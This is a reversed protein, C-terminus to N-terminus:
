MYEGGSLSTEYKSKNKEIEDALEGEKIERLAEILHWWCPDLSSNLWGKVLEKKMREADNPFDKKLSDLVHPPLGLCVGLTYLSKAVTELSKLVSVTDISFISSWLTFKHLFLLCEQEMRRNGTVSM